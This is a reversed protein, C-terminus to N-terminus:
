EVIVKNFYTQKQTFIKIFYVGKNLSSIDIKNNVPIKEIFNGKTDILHVKIVKDETNIILNKSAPNPYIKLISKQLNNVNLAVGLCQASDIYGSEVSDSNYVATVHMWFRGTPYSIFNGDDNNGYGVPNEYNIITDTQFRYLENERYIKYGILTDQGTEPREWKLRYYNYPSIYWQNWDLHQVPNIQGFLNFTFIFFGAFLMNKKM